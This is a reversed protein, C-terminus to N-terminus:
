GQESDSGLGRESPPWSASATLAASRLEPLLAAARAARARLRDPEGSCAWRVYFPNGRRAQESCFSLDDTFAAPVRSLVSELDVADWGYAALLRVATAVQDAQSGPEGLRALEKLATALDDGRSGRHALDFDILGSAGGDPTYVLNHAGLDGHCTVEAGAGPVTGATLDHLRRVWRMAQLLPRLAYPNGGAALLEWDALGSVFSVRERGDPALGGARPAWGCGADALVALLEQVFPTHPGAPRLVWEGRRAVPNM